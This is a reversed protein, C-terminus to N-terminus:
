AHPKPTGEGYEEFNNNNLEALTTNLRMIDRTLQLGKASLSAKLLAIAAERQWKFRPSQYCKAIM